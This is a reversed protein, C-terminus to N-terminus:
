ILKALFLNDHQWCLVKAGAFLFCVPCFVPATAHFSFHGRAWMLDWIRSLISVLLLESSRAHPPRKATIAQLPRKEWCYCSAM